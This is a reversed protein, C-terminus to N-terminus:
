VDHTLVGRIPEIGLKQKVINTVEELKEEVKKRTDPDYTYPVIHAVPLTVAIITDECHKLVGRVEIHVYEGHNVIGITIPKELAVHKRFEELSEVYIVKM